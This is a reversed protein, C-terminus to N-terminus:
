KRNMNNRNIVNKRKLKKQPPPAELILDSVQASDMHYQQATKYNPGHDRLCHDM